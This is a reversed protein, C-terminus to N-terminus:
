IRGKKLCNEFRLLDDYFARSIEGFNAPNINCKDFGNSCYSSLNNLYTNAYSRRGMYVNPKGSNESLVNITEFKCEDGRWRNTHKTRTSNCGKSLTVMNPSPMDDICLNDSSFTAKPKKINVFPKSKGQKIVNISLRANGSINVCKRQAIFNIKNSCFMKGKTCGMLIEYNNQKIEELEEKKFNQIVLSNLQSEDVYLVDKDQIPLGENQYHNQSEISNKHEKRSVNKNDKKEKIIGKNKMVVQIEKSPSQIYLNGTGFDLITKNNSLFDRGLIIDYDYMKVSNPVVHFMQKIVDVGIKISGLCTGLTKVSNNTFGDLAIAENQNLANSQCFSELKIICVDAGSDM